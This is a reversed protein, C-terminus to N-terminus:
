SHVYTGSGTYKIITEDGITTVTPSGTTTGSYDSTRMRLIVVGSGGAGSDGADGSAGGGGGTNVTAAYGNQGTSGTGGQGGGGTGGAGGTAGQTGGAGGGGGAYAQLDNNINVALGAGGVGPTSSVNAAAASAGGGGAGVYPHGNATTNGGAFGENSTGAGGTNGGGSPTTGAGGGSGGAIGDPTNNSGGGGGGVTSVSLNGSISSTSGALGRDQYTTQAAGGAGITITYTGSSLTHVSEASSGGGSSTGFSTRLGGAGGGGGNSSGSAGGAVVLYAMKGTDVVPSPNIKFAMYIYTNGNANIDSNANNAGDFYFQTSTFSVYEATDDYEADSINARLSKDTGRVSDFIRWGGTNSTNKILIWDAQFGITQNNGQSGSGTYSGIKSFSSVSHFCYAIYDSSEQLTTGTSFVTSTTATSNWISGGSSANLAEANTLNLRIFYHAPNTGGNLDKHYVWWDQAASLKKVIIMEPASSLGHGITAAAGTGYYQVISFGANANASVISNISGNTNITPENDDAKWFYSIFNTGAHNSPGWGGWLKTSTPLFEEIGYTTGSQASTQNLALHYGVGRISDYVGWDYTSDDRGKTILLGTQFGNDITQSSNSGAYGKINFSNAITPAETDPDAAFAMYLYTGGSANMGQHSHKIQFGNSLFDTTRNSSNVEEAASEDAKLSTNRPNTLNRKNDLIIWGDNSDTRKVMLFAPEFGTNVIPGNASGNGTYTGIKSYSDVDTFFYVVASSGSNFPDNTQFTLNTSDFTPVGSNDFANTSNLLGRGYGSVVTNYFFWSSTSDTRKVLAVKPTSNLGHPIIPNSANLTYSVISFGAAPNASQSAASVGTSSSTINTATGGAKWCYAVYTNGNDNVAQQSGMTFGDADFSSVTNSESDEAFNLNFFLTQPSTLGRTSDFVRWSNTGDREKIALWDPKFGVGTISQTAGNGTYTVVSFNESPTIGGAAAAAKLLKDNLSM